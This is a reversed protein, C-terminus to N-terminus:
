NWDMTWVLKKAEFFSKLHRMQWIGMFILIVTQGLSWWLVRANTSDSVQRFREERVQFCLTVSQRFTHNVSLWFMMLLSVLYICVPFLSVQTSCKCMGAPISTGQHNTWDPRIAASDEAATWEAEGQSCDPWLRSCPRWYFHGPSCALSFLPVHSAVTHAHTRLTTCKCLYSTFVSPNYLCVVQSIIHVHQM